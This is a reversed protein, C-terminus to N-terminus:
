RAQRPSCPPRWRSRPASRASRLRVTAATSSAPMLTISPVTASHSSRRTVPSRGKSSGPAVRDLQEVARDEVCAPRAAWPSSRRVAVHAHAVDDDGPPRCARSSKKVLTSSAEVLAVRHPPLSRVTQDEAGVVASWARPQRCDAAPVLGAASEGSAPPPIKSHRRDQAQGPRSTRCRSSSSGPCACWRRSLREVHVRRLLVRDLEAVAPSATCPSCAVYSILGARVPSMFKERRGGKAAWGEGGPAGVAAAAHRRPTAIVSRLPTPSGLELPAFTGRPCGPPPGPPPV